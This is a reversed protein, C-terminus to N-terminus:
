RVVVTSDGTSPHPFMRQAMERDHGYIDDRFQLAGSGDVWATFYSIYVPVPEKLSVWKEKSLSMAEKIKEATWEPQNRLLYRAMKEADELRICGHSFARKERKFLEKAPTDHFYINYNNPFLFKVRGLANKGGPKQRVVPLSGSRGTVEMNNRALYGRNRNMAPVIEHRVISAPVNWYPSFVVYKLKDSFIVTSSGEKGVVIAMSFVEKNQEFVHLKFEPINVIIKDPVPNEPLWRMRELNILLQEVRTKVPVNLASVLTADIIGDANLGFGLQSKKVATALVSDYLASTDWSQYEGTRQLRKKVLRIAASSDGPKLMKKKELVIPQWDGKDAIDNFRILENKLAKYNANMPEWADLATGKRQLLSDLLALADVKRRPIFWKLDYPDVKGAYAVKAYIFFQRTLALDTASLKKKEYTFNSDVEAFESLREALKKDFLSSDKSFSIFSNLLNWFSNGQETLGDKNFWAYQYNRSNYFSRLYRATLTDVQGSQIFEEVTLSDIFLDSFSNQPTISRDRQSFDANGGKVSSEKCSTFAVSLLLLSLVLLRNM